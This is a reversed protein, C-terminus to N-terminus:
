RLLRDNRKPCRIVALYLGEPKQRFSKDLPLFGISCILLFLDVIKLHSLVNMTLLTPIHLHYMRADLLINHFDDDNLAIAAREGHCQQDELTM